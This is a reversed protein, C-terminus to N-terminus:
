AYRPMTVTGAWDLCANAGDSPVAMYGKLKAPDIKADPRLRQGLLMLTCLQVQDSPKEPGLPENFDSKADTGYRCECGALAGVLGTGTADIVIDAEITQVHGDARQVTVGRVRNTAGESVLVETMPAYCWLQLNPEARVMRSIVQVYASPMFWPSMNARPEGTLRFDRNLMAVMEAYIGVVPGGCLMAVYMDVPAGGPTGDDELLIVKAGARAAALAAPVGSAGAGVVLVQTRVADKVDARPRVVKPEDAVAASGAVGLMPAAMAGGLFQRRNWSAM